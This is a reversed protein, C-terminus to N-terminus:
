GAGGADRQRVLESFTSLPDMPVAFINTSSKDGTISGLTQLYRLQM